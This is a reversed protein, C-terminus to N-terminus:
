KKPANQTSNDLSEGILEPSKLLDEESKQTQRNRLKTLGKLLLLAVLTYISYFAWRTIYFWLRPTTIYSIPMVKINATLKFYIWEFLFILFPSLGSIVFMNQIKRKKHREM